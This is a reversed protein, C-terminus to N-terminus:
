PLIKWESIKSDSFVKERRSNTRRESIWENVANVLDIQVKRENKVVNGTIKLM